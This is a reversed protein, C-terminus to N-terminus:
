VRRAFRVAQRVAELADDCLVGYQGVGVTAFGREAATAIAGVLEPPPADGVARATLWLESRRAGVPVAVPMAEIQDVTASVADPISVDMRPTLDVAEGAGALDIITEGTGAVCLGRVVDSLWDGRWALYAALPENDSVLARLADAAPPHGELCRRLMVRVCRRAAEGDVGAARSAQLCSEDFCVSLLSRAVVGLSMGAELGPSFAEPWALQVDRLLIAAPSLTTRLDAVLGALYAVVDPNALCLGVCSSGGLANKATLHPYRQPLLGTRTASVILRLDLSRAACADAIRPLATRAPKWRAAIPQCRTAVYADRTVPAFVGGDTRFVSPAVNGARLQVVPPTAAWVAVGSVGLEGHVRDLAADVGDDVLD